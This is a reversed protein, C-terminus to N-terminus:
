YQRWNRCDLYREFDREGILKKLLNYDRDQRGRPIKANHWHSIGRRGCLGKLGVTHPPEAPLRNRTYNNRWMEGDLNSSNPYRLCTEIVIPSVKEHIWGLQCFAFHYNPPTRTWRQSPVHYYYLQSQAALDATELGRLVIEAHTQHYWDDDEFVLVHTSTVHKLAELVNLKLTHQYDTRKRERRIYTAWQPVNSPIHGDDVIIWQSPPITQRELYERCIELQFPRDGTPTIATYAM